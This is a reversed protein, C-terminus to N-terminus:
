ESDAKEGDDKKKFIWLKSLFYNVIVVFVSAVIKMPMALADMHTLDVTLWLFATEFVLSVVRAIVFNILEILIKVGKAKSEFVWIKNTIYAFAVACVWSLVNPIIVSEENEVYVYNDGDKPLEIVANAFMKYFVYFTVWSVVTTLVGFILYLTKEKEDTFLIILNKKFTKPNLV